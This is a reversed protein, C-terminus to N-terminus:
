RRVRFNWLRTATLGEGDRALILVRHRGPELRPTRYSLRETSPDYSFRDV